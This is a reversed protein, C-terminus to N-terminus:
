SQSIVEGSTLKVVTFKDTKFLQNLKECLNFCHGENVFSVKRYKPTSKKGNKNFGLKNLSRLNFPSGDYFVAYVGAAALIQLSDYTKRDTNDLKIEPKPRSM